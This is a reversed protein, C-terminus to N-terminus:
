KINIIFPQNVSTGQYAGISFYTGRYEGLIDRFALENSHGTGIAPSNTILSFDGNSPNTFMPNETVKGAESAFWSPLKAGSSSYFLNNSHIAPANIAQSIGKNDYIINNRFDCLNNFSSSLSQSYITNNYILCGASGTSIIYMGPGNSESVVNNWIKIDALNSSTATVEISYGRQNKVVNNHVLIEGQWGVSPSMDYIHIGHLIPNNILNNWGIEYGKCWQNADGRCSVYYLHQFRDVTTCNSCTEGAIGNYPPSTWLSDNNQYVWGNDYGYNHIYVGLYKGGQPVGGTGTIAGGYGGYVNPGTIEVGIIRGYPIVSFGNPSHDNNGYGTVKIKSFHVYENNRNSPYWNNIVSNSNDTKGSFSALTNPYSTLFIPSSETGAVRSYYGVNLGGKSGVGHTYIIDGAQLISSKSNAFVYYSTAYPNGYSGDGTSDSGTSKIHLIRGARITFPLTNSTQGGVTVSITTAGNSCSAPLSFAIEQMKHYTYLDAPGGPLSGDANKWYYIHAPNTGCVSISSEGRTSGLGVGWITVIAGSGLGDGIGVSPGSTLDSFYITPQKSFAFSCNFLVITIIIACIKDLIKM